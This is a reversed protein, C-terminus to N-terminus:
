QLEQRVMRAIRQEAARVEREIPLRQDLVHLQLRNGEIGVALTGPMLSLASALILQGPGPALRLQLDLRAPRLVLRPRLALLAVQVGGRVSQVVFFGFFAVAGLPSFRTTGPPALKLSAWLALLLTPGGVMWSTPDGGTLVWWIAGLALARALM